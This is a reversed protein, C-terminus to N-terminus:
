QIMNKIEDKSKLGVETKILKGNEFLLLTPISEIEYEELINDATDTDIKYFKCDETEKAIEDIIPSLMKCPGCWTAFCDILVKGKENKKENFEEETIQIVEM